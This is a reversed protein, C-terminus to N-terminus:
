KLNGGKVCPMSQTLCFLATFRFLPSVPILLQYQTMAISM